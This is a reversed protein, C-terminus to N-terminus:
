NAVPSLPKRVFLWVWGHNEYEPPVKESLESWRKNVTKFEENVKKREEKDTVKKSGHIKSMLGSMQKRVDVLEKKTKELVAKEKESLTMAPPRQTTFDGVMLDLRGDGNWDAAWIKSRIGRKPESPAEKGYEVECSPLLTVAKDLKASKMDGVNRYFRVSGDGCGVLLDHKGDGDWDCVFPGSDGGPVDALLEQHKGFAYKTKTGENPILYVHGRIDGVLLDLDGDTDWDCAHVASATGTTAAGKEEDYEIEKGHYKLIKKGNMEEFTAHGTILVGYNSDKRIGGGINIYEGTKDKIMEPEDFGSGNARFLFLEGPWSGSLIDLKGDGDLDM